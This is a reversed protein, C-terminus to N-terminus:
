IKKLKELLEDVQSTEKLSEQTTQLCDLCNSLCKGLLEENMDTKLVLNVMVEYYLKLSDFHHKLRPLLDLLPQKSIGKFLPSNMCDSLLEKLAPILLTKCTARSFKGKPLKEIKEMKRTSLQEK